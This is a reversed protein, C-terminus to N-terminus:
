LREVGRARRFRVVLEAVSAALVGVLLLTALAWLPDAAHFAAPRILPPVPRDTVAMAAPDLLTQADFALGSIVTLGILLAMEPQPAAPRSCSCPWPCRWGSGRRGCDWSCSSCPVCAAPPSPPRSPSRSRGALTAVAFCGSHALFLWGIPNEPRNGAVLGCVAAFTVVMGLNTVLYANVADGVSVRGALLLVVCAAAMGEAALCLVWALRGLGQPERRPALSQRTTM